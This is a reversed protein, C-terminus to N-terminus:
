KIEGFSKIDGQKPLSEYGLFVPTTTCNPKPPEILAREKPIAQAISAVGSAVNQFTKGQDPTSTSNIGVLVGDNNLTAGFTYSELFGHHYHLRYPHEADAVSVIKRVAVQECHDSLVLPSGAQGTAPVNIHIFRDVEVMPKARYVIIGNIDEKTDYKDAITKPDLPSMIVKGSCAATILGILVFVTLWLM